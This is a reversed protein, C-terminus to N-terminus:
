SGEQRMLAAITRAFEDIELSTVSARPLRMEDDVPSLGRAHTTFGRRYGVKRAVSRTEKDSFGFPYALYDVPGITDELSAKSMRLEDLRTEPSVKTLNPHTMTHSGLSVLPSSSLNVLETWKLTRFKATDAPPAVERLQDLIYDIQEPSANLMVSHLARYVSEIDSQAECKIDVTSDGLDVTLDLLSSRLLVALEDWWFLEDDVLHGTVVFLTSPIGLGELIPCTTELFDRYADDFTIAVTGSGADCDKLPVIEFHSQLYSMQHEFQAPTVAIHAHDWQLDAVRHYLLVVTM